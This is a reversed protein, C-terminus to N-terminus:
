VGAFVLAKMSLMLVILMQQLYVMKEREHDKPRAGGDEDAWRGNLHHARLM